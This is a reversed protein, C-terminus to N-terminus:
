CLRVHPRQATVRDRTTSNEGESPEVGQPL